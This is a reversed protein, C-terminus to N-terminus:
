YHTNGYEVIMLYEGFGGFAVRYKGFVNYGHKQLFQIKKRFEADFGSVHGPAVHVYALEYIKSDTM